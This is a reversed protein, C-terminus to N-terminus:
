RQNKTIANLRETMGAIDRLISNMDPRSETLNVNDIHVSNDTVSPTKLLEPLEVSLKQTDYNRPYDAISAAMAEKAFTDLGMEHYMDELTMVKYGSIDIASGDGLTLVTGNIETSLGNGDVVPNSVVAEGAGSFVTGNFEISNVDKATEQLSEVVRKELELTEELAEMYSYPYTELTRAGTGLLEGNGYYAYGNHYPSTLNKNDHNQENGFILMHNFLTHALRGDDWMKRLDEAIQSHDVIEDYGIRKNMDLRSYGEETLDNNLITWPSDRLISYYIGKLVEIEPLQGAFKEKGEPTLNNIADVVYGISNIIDGMQSSIAERARIDDAESQKTELNTLELRSKQATMELDYLKDPDAVNQKRTGMIIQTDREKRANEIADMDKATQLRQKAIDLQGKLADMQRNYEATIGELKWQEDERLGSIQEQYKVRAEDSAELLRAIELSEEAYDQENFLQKRTDPNLWQDHHKNAELTADIENQAERLGDKFDYFNQQSETMADNIAKDFETAERVRERGKIYLDIKEDAEQKAMDRLKDNVDDIAEGAEYWAKKQTQIQEAIQQMVPVLEPMVMSMSELDKTFQTSFEGNADFWSEIDYREFIPAYDENNYLDLVAQHAAEQKKRNIDLQQNYNKTQETMIAHRDSIDEAYNLERDLEENVKQVWSLQDDYTKTVREARAVLFETYSKMQSVYSDSLERAESQIEDIGKVIVSLEDANAGNARRENYYRRAAGLAKMTDDYTQKTREVNLKSQMELMEATYAETTNHIEERVRAYDSTGVSKLLKDDLTEFKFQSENQFAVLADYTEIFKENNKSAIQVNEKIYGLLNDEYGNSEETSIQGGALFDKLQTKFDKRLEKVAFSTNATNDVIDSTFSTISGLEKAAQIFEPKNARNWVTRGYKDAASGSGNYRKIATQWNGYRQYNSALLKAGELVNSYRDTKALQKRKADMGALAGYDYLMMYGYSHGKGDAVSDYWKYGTEQDMVAMIINAPVSTAESAKKIYSLIEKNTTPTGTAHPKLVKATTKEGVVDYQSRDFFTPKDIVTQEGTKKNILIERNYNEGGVSDINDGYAKFDQTGKAYPRIAGVYTNAYYGSDMKSYKVVDGTKPAHIFQGNGVYLGVHGPKNASGEGKFFVVDGPRLQEKAVSQGRVNGSQFQDWSVRPVSVGNQALVYQVLGSCDFGSPSTGGWKYPTGLYKKAEEVIANGKESTQESVPLKGGTNSEAMANALYEGVKKQYEAWGAEDITPAKGLEEHMKQVATIVNNSLQEVINSVTIATNTTENVVEADTQKQEDKVKKDTDQQNKVVAAAYQAQKDYADKLTDNLDQRKRENDAMQEKFQMDLATKQMAAITDYYRQMEEELTRNEKRQKEYVSEPVTPTLNFDFGILGGESLSKVNREFLSSAKQLTAKQMSGISKLASTYYEAVNKGYDRMNKANTAINDAVSKMRNALEQAMEGSTAQVQSLQGFENRLLSAKQQALDIQATTTTLKGIYDDDAQMSMVNDLISLADSTKNISRELDDFRYKLKQLAESKALDELSKKTDRITKETTNKKDSPKFDIKSDASKLGERLDKIIRERMLSGERHNDLSDKLLDIQAATANAQVALDILANIDDTTNIKNLGLSYKALELDLLAMKAIDASEAEDIFARVENEAEQANKGSAVANEFSAVASSAKAKSVMDHAVALSNMVGSENLVTAIMNEDADAFKGEAILGNIYAQALDVLARKRDELSATMDTMRSVYDDINDVTEGLLQIIGKKSDSKVDNFINTYDVAGKDELDDMAKKISNIGNILGTSELDSYKENLSSKITSVTNEVTDAVDVFFQKFQPMKMLVNNIATAVDEETGVFDENSKATNILEAQYAKFEEATQPMQSNNEYVAIQALVGNYDAEADKLNQVDETLKNYYDSLYKYRSDNVLEEVTKGSQEQYAKMMDAALEYKTIVDDATDLLNVNSLFAYEGNTTAGFGPAFGNNVNNSVLTERAAVVGSMLETEKGKLADISVQKIANDLSGYKQTLEDITQGELGLATLLENQVSILNDKQSADSKVAETLEFYRERLESLNKAEDASASATDMAEQRQEKLKQNHSDMAQNIAMIAGVTIAVMGMPTAAWATAVEWLAGATARAAASFGNMAYISRILEADLNLRRFMELSQMWTFASRAGRMAVLFLLFKTTFRGFNSDLANIIGSIDELANKITSTEQLGGVYSVWSAKLKELKGNWSDLYIENERMASGTSDAYIRQAKEVDQWNEMLATFVNSQRKNAIGEMLASQQVSSLNNWKAALEDLVTMPNRLENIGNRVERIQIGVANLATEAKSLRDEDIVEGTELDTGKIQRLSMLITRLARGISEGSDQTAAQVTGQIAAFEQASLGANAFVSASVRLGQSLEEVNTATRNALDNFGDVINTLSGIDGNLKWAASATILMKNALENDIDGVNETLLALEGLEKSQDEFGAKAFAAVSKLYESPSRAFATAASLSAKQLRQMELATAGTVKRIEVMETSMKKLERYADTISSVIYSIARYAVLARLGEQLRYTFRGAERTANGIRQHTHQVQGNIQQQINLNANLTRNEQALAAIAQNETQATREKAIALQNQVRLRATELQYARQEATLMANANVKVAMQNIQQIRDRIADLQQQVKDLNVANARINITQANLQRVINEVRAKVQSATTEDIQLRLSIVDNAFDAM